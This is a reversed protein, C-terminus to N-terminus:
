HGVHSSRNGMRDANSTSACIRLMTFCKDVDVLGEAQIVGFKKSSIQNVMDESAIQFSFFSFFFGEKKLFNSGFSTNSLSIEIVVRNTRRKANTEVTLKERGLLWSEYGM